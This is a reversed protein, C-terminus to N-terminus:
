ATFQKRNKLAFQYNLENLNDQYLYFEKDCEDLIEDFNEALDGWMRWDEYEYGKPVQNGFAGLAKEHIEAVKDAGIERLSALVEHCYAGRYNDFFQKYGGNNIQVELQQNYFFTKEAESLRRLREGYECKKLIWSHLSTIFDNVDKSKWIKRFRRKKLIKFM